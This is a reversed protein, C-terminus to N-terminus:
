TIQSACDASKHSYLYFLPLFFSKNLTTYFLCKFTGESNKAKEVDKPPTQLVSHINEDYMM